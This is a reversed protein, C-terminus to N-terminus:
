MYDHKIADKMKRMTKKSPMMYQLKRGSKTKNFKQYHFGLFDFGEKNMYVIKTKQPNLTPKMRTMIRKLHKFVIEADRRIGRVIVVDDTYRVITGLEKYNEWYSDLILLYINALLLSIVGGQPSGKEIRCYKGDELVGAQLWQRCM